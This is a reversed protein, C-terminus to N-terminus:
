RRAGTKKFLTVLGLVTGFLAWFLAIARPGFGYYLAGIILFGRGTFPPESAHLWETVAMICFVCALVLVFYRARNVAAVTFPLGPAVRTVDYKKSRIGYGHNQRM